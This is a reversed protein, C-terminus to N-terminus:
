KLKNLFQGVNWAGTHFIKWNLQIVLRSLLWLLRKFVNAIFTPTKNNEKRIILERLIVRKEKKYFLVITWTGTHSVIVFLLMLWKVETENSPLGNNIRLKWRHHFFGDDM